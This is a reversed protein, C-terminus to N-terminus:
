KLNDGGFERAADLYNGKDQKENLWNNFEGSKNKPISLTVWDAARLHKSLFQIQGVHSATHMAARNIAKVVTFEEGRIRVTKELDEVRLSELADFLSQFGDEWIRMISERTDNESVFEADRNRDPKEGDTTLFDTWRSRLNGGIHKCITAVSNSEADITTFFEEDSIQEFAREALKKYGRFGEISESLFNAIIKKSM